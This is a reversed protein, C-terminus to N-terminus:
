KCEENFGITITWNKRRAIPKLTDDTDISLTIVQGYGQEEELMREFVNRLENKEVETM